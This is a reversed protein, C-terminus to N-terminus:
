ADGAERVARLRRIMELPNEELVEAKSLAAAMCAAHQKVLATLGNATEDGADVRRALLLAAQGESTHAVGAATLERQTAASVNPRDHEAEAPAVTPPVASVASGGTRAVRRNRERKPSCTACYRRRGGPGDQRGIPNGCKQCNMTM